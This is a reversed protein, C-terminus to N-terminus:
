GISGSGPEPPFGGFGGLVNRHLGARELLRYIASRFASPKPISLPEAGSAAQLARLTLTIGADQWRRLTHALDADVGGPMEQVVLARRIGSALLRHASPFDTPFSVSRNDFATSAVLVDRKHRRRADLLFVPPSDPELPLKALRETGHFLASLISLVDVQAADTRNPAPAGNFLPVPRYRLHEAFLLGFAVSRAGPLNVVVVAREHAEPLDEFTGPWDQEGSQQPPLPEESGMHAFLVPKCWPSWTARPPAWVDFIAEKNM